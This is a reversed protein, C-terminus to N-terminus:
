IHRYGKWLKKTMVIEDVGVGMAGQKMTWFFNVVEFNEDDLFIGFVEL